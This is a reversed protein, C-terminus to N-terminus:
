VEGGADLIPVFTASMAVRRGESVKVQTLERPDYWVPPVSVTEGAFARRILALVGQERAVEDELVNYEPPPAVGFLDLFARNTLLSRGKVSYLQLPVPCAAFIGELLGLPDSLESLVQRM